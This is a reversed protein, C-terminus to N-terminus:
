KDTRILYVNDKRRIADMGHLNYRKISTKLSTSCGNASVQTYEEVRACALGSNLFEELIELNKTKKYSGIENISCEVLKM